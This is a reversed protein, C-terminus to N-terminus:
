ENEKIRRELNETGDYLKMMLHFLQKVEEQSYGEFLYQLDKQYVSFVEEFYDEMKETPCINIARM